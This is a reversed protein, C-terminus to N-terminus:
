LRIMAAMEARAVRGRRGSERAASVNLDGLRDRFAVLDALNAEIRGLARRVPLGGDKAWRQATRETCGLVRAISKFGKVVNM